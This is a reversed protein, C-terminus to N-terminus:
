LWALRTCPTYASHGSMHGVRRSLSWPCVQDSPHVFDIRQSAGFTTVLHSNEREDEIRGDDALDEVMQGLLGFGLASSRRALRLAESGSSRAEDTGGRPGPSLTFEPEVGSTQGWFPWMQAKGVRM